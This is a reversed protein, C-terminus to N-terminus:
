SSTEDFYFYERDIDYLVPTHSTKFLFDHFFTQTGGVEHVILCPLDAM